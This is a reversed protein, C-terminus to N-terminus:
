HKKTKVNNVGNEPFFIVANIRFVGVQLNHFNSKSYM